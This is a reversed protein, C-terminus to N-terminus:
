GAKWPSPIGGDIQRVLEGLFWHRFATTAPPAVLDPERTRCEEDAHDLLTGLRALDDRASRPVPFAIDIPATTRRQASEALAAEAPATIDGFKARMTAVQARLEALCPGEGEYALLRELHAHAAAWHPVPLDLLLVDVVQGSAM